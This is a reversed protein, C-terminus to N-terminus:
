VLQAFHVIPALLKSDKLQILSKEAEKKNLTKKVEIAMIYGHSASVLIFDKENINNDQREPDFKLIELSHFIAISEDSVESRKKLANYLDLEPAEGRWTRLGGLFVKEHEKFEQRREPMAEAAQKSYELKQAGKSPDVYKVAKSLYYEPIFIVIAEKGSWKVLEPYNRVMLKAVAEPISNAFEGHGLLVILEKM